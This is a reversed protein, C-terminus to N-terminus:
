LAPSFRFVERRPRSICVCHNGRDIFCNMADIMMTKDVYIESKLIERFHTNGPNLYIGM